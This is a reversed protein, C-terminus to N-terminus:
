SETVSQTTKGEGPDRLECLTYHFTNHKPIVAPSPLKLVFTSYGSINGLRGGVGTVPILSLAKPKSPLHEVV